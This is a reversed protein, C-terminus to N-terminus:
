PHFLLFWFDFRSVQTSKLFGNTLSALQVFIWKAPSCPSHGRHSNSSTTHDSSQLGAFPFVIIISNRIPAYLPRIFNTRSKWPFRWSNLQVVASDSIYDHYTAEYGGSVPNPMYINIGSRNMKIQEPLAPWLATFSQQLLPQLLYGLITFQEPKRPSSDNDWQKRCWCTWM